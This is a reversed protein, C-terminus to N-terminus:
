YALCHQPTICALLDCFWLNQRRQLRPEFGAATSKISKHEETPRLARCIGPISAPCCTPPFWICLHIPVSNKGKNTEKNTRFIAKLNWNRSEIEEFIKFVSSCLSTTKGCGGKEGSQAREWRLLWGSLVVLPWELSPRHWVTFSHPPGFWDVIKTQHPSCQAGETLTPYSGGSRGLAAMLVSAQTLGVVSLAIDFYLAFKKARYRSIM